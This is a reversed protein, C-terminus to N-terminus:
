SAPEAAFSNIQISGALPTSGGVTAPDARFGAEGAGVFPALGRTHNGHLPCVGKVDGLDSTRGRTSSYQFAAPSSGALPTSGGVQQNR